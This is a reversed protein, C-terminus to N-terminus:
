LGGTVVVAWEVLKDALSDYAGLSWLLLMLGVSFGMVQTRSFYRLKEKKM